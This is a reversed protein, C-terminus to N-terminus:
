QPLDTRLALAKGLGITSGGGIAILSDCGAARLQSLATETVGVPTHMTAEAFVTQAACDSAVRLALDKQDATCIVFARRCGLRELESAIERVRGSGFLVRAPNSVYAFPSIGTVAIAKGRSAM